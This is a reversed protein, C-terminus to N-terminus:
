EIEYINELPKPREILEGHFCTIVKNIRFLVWSPIEESKIWSLAEFTEVFAKKIELDTTQPRVEALQYGTECDADEEKKRTLWNPVLKKHERYVKTSLSHGLYHHAREHELIIYRSLVSLKKLLEFDYYVYAGSNDYKVYAVSQGNMEMQERTSPVYQSKVGDITQVESFLELAWSSFSFHLLCFFLFFRIM